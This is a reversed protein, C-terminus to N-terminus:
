PRGYARLVARTAASPWAAAAQAWDSEMWSTLQTTDWPNGSRASQHDEGGRAQGARLWAQAETGCPRRRAHKTLQTYKYLMLTLPQGDHPLACLLLVAHQNRRSCFQACNAECPHRRRGCRAHLQSKAPLVAVDAMKPLLLPLQQLMTMCKACVATASASSQRVRAATAMDACHSLVSGRTKPRPKRPHTSTSSSVLEQKRQQDSRSPQCSTTLSSRLIM